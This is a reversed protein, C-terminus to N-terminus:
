SAASTLQLGALRQCRHVRLLEPERSAPPHPTLSPKPTGAKWSLVWRGQARAESSNLHLADSRQESTIDFGDTIEQHSFLLNWLVEDKFCPPARPQALLARMCLHCGGVLQEAMQLSTKAADTKGCGGCAAGHPLAAPTRGAQPCSTRSGV